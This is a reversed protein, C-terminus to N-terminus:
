QGLERQMQPSAQLQWAESLRTALEAPDIAGLRTLVAPYGRSHDDDFYRDPAADILMEKVALDCSIAIVDDIRERRGRPRSRALYPWCLGKRRIGFTADAGTVGPLSSAINALDSLTAM